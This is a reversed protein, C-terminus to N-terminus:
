QARGNSVLRAMEVVMYRVPNPSIKLDSRCANGESGKFFKGGQRAFGIDHMEMVRPREAVQNVKHRGNGFWCNQCVVRVNDSLSKQSLEILRQHIVKQLAHIADNRGRRVVKFGTFGEPGIPVLGLHDRDAKIAGGIRATVM